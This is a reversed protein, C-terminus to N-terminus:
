SLAHKSQSRYKPAKCEPAPGIAVNEAMMGLLLRLTPGPCRRGNELFVYYNTTVGVRKAMQSQSLQMRDRLARVWLSFAGMEESM